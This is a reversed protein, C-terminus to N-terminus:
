EEASIRKWEAIQGAKLRAIRTGGANLWRCEDLAGDEDLDNERYVEFGDLYYSWQDLHPYPKTEGKRKTEVGNTDIFRRLLKGQGDRLAFGVSKKGQSVTEVTCADIAAKDAPTDYEVGRQRPQFKSLLDAPTYQASSWAPAIGLLATAALTTRLARM